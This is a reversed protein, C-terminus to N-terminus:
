NPLLAEIQTALDGPAIGEERYRIVGERDILLNLPTQTMHDDFYSEVTFLTDRLVPFTLEYEDRWQQCFLSTTPLADADEFLVQVIRLGRSCFPQFIEEEMVRTEEICPGCWGAGVNLLVLEAQSLGQGFSVDNGDCDRLVFDELRDGIHSGYPGEPYTFGDLNEILECSVPEIPDPEPEPEIIDPEPESATDAIARYALWSLYPLESGPDSVIMSGDETVTGTGFPALEAEQVYTEDPLYTSLGGVLLLEVRSSAPLGTNNPIRVPFGPDANSEKSLLYIGELDNEAEAFCPNPSDIEIRRAALRAYDGGIGLDAPVVDMELGDDFVVTRPETEDGLPPLLSPERVSFLVFPDFALLGEVPALEVQCYSTGFASAPLSIRM